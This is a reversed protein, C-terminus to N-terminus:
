RKQPAGANIFPRVVKDMLEDVGHDIPKIILPISALGAATPSWRVISAPSLRGAVHVIRNIVFGPIAVSALGQWLVTDVAEVIPSHGPPPMMSRWGADASVYAGAVGYSAAVAWRPVLPRFAEGVENAYGLLRVPGQRLADPDGSGESMVLQAILL